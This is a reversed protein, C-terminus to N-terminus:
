LGKDLLFQEVCKQSIFRMLSIKEKREKENMLGMSDSSNFSNNMELLFDYAVLYFNKELMKVAIEYYDFFQKNLDLSNHQLFFESFQEERKLFLEKYSLDKHWFCDWISDKDLAFLATRELGYALEVCPTKLNVGGIQQFYTYQCIEMKDCQVEFGSGFAGLSDSEWTGPLFQIQHENKKIGVYDLSELFLDIINEPIPKIIVQIQHHNLFRNGSKGYRGDARRQSVQIMGISVREKLSGFFSEPHYTGAGCPINYNNIRAISCKKEWFQLIGEGVEYVSTPKM